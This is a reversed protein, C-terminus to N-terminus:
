LEEPKPILKWEVIENYFDEWTDQNTWNNVTGRDTERKAPFWESGETRVWYWRGNIPESV